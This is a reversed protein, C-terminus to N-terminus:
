EEDDGDAESEDDALVILKDWDSNAVNPWDELDFGQLEKLKKRTTDVVFFVETEDHVLSFEEWPVAFFKDGFGFFGGFCLVAYAVRGSEIDIVVEQIEGLKKHDPTQVPIGIVNGSRFVKRIKVEMESDKM